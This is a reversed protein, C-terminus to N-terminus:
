KKSQILRIRQMRMHLLPDLDLKSLNFSIFLAGVREPSISGSGFFWAQASKRDTHTTSDTHTGDKAVVSGSWVKSQSFHFRIRGIKGSSINVRYEDCGKCELTYCRIRIWNHISPFPDPDLEKPLFPDPDLEKPLFPDPDSWIGPDVVEQRLQHETQILGMRQMRM